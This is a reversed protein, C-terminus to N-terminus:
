IERYREVFEPPLFDGWADRYARWSPSFQVSAMPEFIDAIDTLGESIAACYRFLPSIGVQRDLLSFRRVEELSRNGRSLLCAVFRQFVEIETRLKDAAEEATVPAFQNRYATVVPRVLLQNPLPTKGGALAFQRFAVSVLIEPFMRLARLQVALRDWITKNQRDKITWRESLRFGATPNKTQRRISDTRHAVYSRQLREAM